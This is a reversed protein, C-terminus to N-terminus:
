EYMIRCNVALKKSNAQETAVISPSATVARMYRTMNFM